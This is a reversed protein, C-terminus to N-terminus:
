PLRTVFPALTCRGTAQEYYILGGQFVRLSIRGDALPIEDSLAAGLWSANDKWLAPIGFTRQEVPLPYRTGWADWTNGMRAEASDAWREIEAVSLGVPDRRRTPDIDAHRVVPLRGWRRRWDVIQWGMALLQADPYPEGNQRNELEFGLTAKNIAGAYYVQNPLHLVATPAGAHNAGREDPVLRYIDGGKSILRHISVGRGGGHQLTSRSDTGATGHAVIAVPRVGGRDVSYDAPLDIITPPFSM